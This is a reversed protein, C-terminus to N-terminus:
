SAKLQEYLDAILTFTEQTIIGLDAPDLVLMLDPNSQQLLQVAAMTQADYVGTPEYDLAFFETGFKQDSMKLVKQIWLTSEQPTKQAQDPYAQAFLEPLLNVQEDTIVQEPVDPVPAPTPQEPEPTIVPEPTPEPSVTNMVYIVRFEYLTNQDSFSMTMRNHESAPDFVYGEIASAPADITLTTEETGLIDGEIARDYGSNLVGDVATFYYQNVRYAYMPVPTPEPTPEPSFTNMVYIVRFEYLTNQDSFSMTMRNHESAPDFVYSEFAS